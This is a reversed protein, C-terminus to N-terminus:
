DQALAIFADSLRRKSRRPIIWQSVSLRLMTEALERLTIRDDRIGPLHDTADQMLAMLEEVWSPFVQRLFALAFAPETELIRISEPHMWNTSLLVEALVRFREAPNPRAAVGEQLRAVGGKRVYDALARLLAEKSPFYRYLTGRAIGAQEIVDSMSLKRQGLRALAVLAADLIRQETALPQTASDSRTAM